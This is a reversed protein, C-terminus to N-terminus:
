TTALQAFIFELLIYKKIKELSGILTSPSNSRNPELRGFSELEFEM